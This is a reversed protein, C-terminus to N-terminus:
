FLRMVVITIAAISASAPITFVWAWVIRSALTIAGSTEAIFGGVPKLKTLKSGMTKVIRFGGMLTGVGMTTYSILVVWYPM